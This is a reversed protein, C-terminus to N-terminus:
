ARSSDIGSIRAVTSVAEIVDNPELQHRILRHKDEAIAEALQGPINPLCPNYAIAESLWRVM